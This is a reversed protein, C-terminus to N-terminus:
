SIQKTVKKKSIIFPHERDKMQQDPKTIEPRQDNGILTIMLGGIWIIGVRNEM